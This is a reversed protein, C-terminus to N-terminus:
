QENDLIPNVKQLVVVNIISGEKDIEFQVVVQGQIRNEQAYVPYKIHRPV